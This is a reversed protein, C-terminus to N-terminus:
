RKQLLKKTLRKSYNGYVLEKTGPYSYKYLRVEYGAPLRQGTSKNLSRLRLIAMFPNFKIDLEQKDLFLYQTLIPKQFRRIVATFCIM